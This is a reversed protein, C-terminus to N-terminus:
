FVGPWAPTEIELLHTGSEMTGLPSEEVEGNESTVAKSVNTHDLEKLEKLVSSQGVDEIDREDKAANVMEAIVDVAKLLVHTTDSTLSTVGDRVQQLIHEVVHTFDAIEMFGFTGAGGKISHAARFILDVDANDPNDEADLLANELTTLHESAEELYTANFQSMDIM